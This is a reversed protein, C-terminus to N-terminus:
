NAAVEFMSGMERGSGIAVEGGYGATGGPPSEAQYQISCVAARGFFPRGRCFRGGVVGPPKTAATGDRAKRSPVPMKITM